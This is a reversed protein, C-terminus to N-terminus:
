AHAMQTYFFGKSDPLWSASFEGWVREIADPLDKGSAVDLVRLTSVESGGESLDYAVLAGDPSPAYSNVSAHTGESGRSAPDVLIRDRGDRDRVMLKPLQEGPDLQMHFIRGGALQVGSPYGYSLGLERIRARLGDRGPIRALFAHTYDGQAGMWEELEPNTSGEMWRYPDPAKIGFRDDVTDVTRAAPLTAPAKRVPTPAHAPASSTTTPKTSPAAAATAAIALAILPLAITPRM